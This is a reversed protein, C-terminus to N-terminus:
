ISRCLPQNWRKYLSYSGTFKSFMDYAKQYYGSMHAGENLYHRMLCFRAYDATYRGKESQTEPCNEAAYELDDTIYKTMDDLSPRVLNAEADADGIYNDDLIV